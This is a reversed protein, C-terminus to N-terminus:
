GGINKFKGNIYIFTEYIIFVTFEIGVPKAPMWKRQDGVVEFVTERNHSARLESVGSAIDYIDPMNSRKPWRGLREMGDVKCAKIARHQQGAEVLLCVDSPTLGSNM